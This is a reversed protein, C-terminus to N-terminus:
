NLRNFVTNLYQLAIKNEPELCFTYLFVTFLWELPKMLIYVTNARKTTTIHKSLPYGYKDYFNRIKRHIKPMREQICQEFANAVCLQRNVIIKEGRRVGLRTPKVIKRDGKLAVTCLYHGHYELPPPPIKQSFTWDATETFAKIAADPQQGFLVLIIVILGLLPIALVFPIILWATSKMLLIRCKELFANGYPPKESFKNIQHNIVGRMLRISCLFYNLPFLLAYFVIFQMNGIMQISYILGLAFGIYMGSICLVTPIPPLKKAFIRLILFAIIAIVWLTIITPAHWSAIARHFEEEWIINIDGVIVPENWDKRLEDLVLLTLGSGLFVTVMDNIFQRRVFKKKAHELEREKFEFDESKSIKRMKLSQNLFLYATNLITLVIPHAICFYMAVVALVTNFAESLFGM